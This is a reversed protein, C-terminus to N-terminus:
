WGELASAMARLEAAIAKARGRQDDFVLPDLVMEYTTFRQACACCTRRRRIHDPLARSDVM